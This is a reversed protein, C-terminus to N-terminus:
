GGSSGRQHLALERLAAEDAGIVIRERHRAIPRRVLNPNEAMMRVLEEQSPLREALGLDRYVGSRTGLFAALPRDGILERLETEALPRRGLDREEIVAGQELL